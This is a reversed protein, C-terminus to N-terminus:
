GFARAQQYQVDCNDEGGLLTRFEEQEYRTGDGEGDADSRPAVLAAGGAHRWRPRLAYPLRGPDRRAVM